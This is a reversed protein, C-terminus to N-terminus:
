SNQVRFILCLVGRSQFWSVKPDEFNLKAAQDYTMETYTIGKAIGICKREIPHLSAIVDKLVGILDLTRVVVEQQGVSEHARSELLFLDCSYRPV